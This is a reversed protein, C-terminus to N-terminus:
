FFDELYILAGECNKTKEGPGLGPRSFGGISGAILCKPLGSRLRCRETEEELAPLNLIVGSDSWPKLLVWHTSHISHLTLRATDDM